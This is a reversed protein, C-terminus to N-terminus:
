LAQRDNGAILRHVIFKLLADYTIYVKKVPKLYQLLGTRRYRYITSQSVGLIEAVEVESLIAEDKELKM